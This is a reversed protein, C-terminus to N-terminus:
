THEAQYVCNVESASEVIYFIGSLGALYSVNSVQVTLNNVLSTHDVNTQSKRQERIM